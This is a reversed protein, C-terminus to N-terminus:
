KFGLTVLALSLTFYTMPIFSFNMLLSPWCAVLQGLDLLIEFTVTFLALSVSTEILFLIFLSLFYFICYEM